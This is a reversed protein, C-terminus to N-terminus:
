RLYFEVRIYDLHIHIFNGEAYKFEVSSEMNECASLSTSYNDCLLHM